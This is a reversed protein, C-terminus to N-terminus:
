LLVPQTKRVKRKKLLEKVDVSGTQEHREQWWKVRAAAIQCYEKSQEVMVIEDWGALMAGIAESGVGGFPILLRRPAYEPPPLLLTALYRCLEIPKVTPHPNRASRDTNPSQFSGPNKTGSSWLLPKKAGELGADRERRSAKAVYRVPEAQDLQWGVQQFFRAATGTSSAFANTSESQSLGSLFETIGNRPTGVSREGSKLEGSQEGLAAVACGPACNM